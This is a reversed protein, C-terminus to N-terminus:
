FFHFFIFLKLIIYFAFNVEQRSGRGWSAFFAAIARVAKGMQLGSIAM